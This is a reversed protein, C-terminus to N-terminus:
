IKLMQRSMGMVSVIICSVDLPYNIAEAIIRETAQANPPLLNEM